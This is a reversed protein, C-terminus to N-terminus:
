RCFKISTELIGLPGAPETFILSGPASIREVVPSLGFLFLGILEDPRAVPNYVDRNISGSQNLDLWLEALANIYILLRRQDKIVTV